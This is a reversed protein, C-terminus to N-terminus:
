GLLKSLADVPSVEGQYVKDTLTKPTTPPSRHAKPATQKPKAKLKAVDKVADRLQRYDHLLKLQRHDHVQDAENPTLGYEDLLSKIAQRDVKAQEPDSWEPIAAQQLQTERSVYQEWQQTAQRREQETPERGLSQQVLMLERRQRLLENETEAKQQQTTALLTESRKLDQVKDKIEGLTFSEGDALPIRVDYLGAADVGLTEALDTLTEPVKEPEPPEQEATQDPQPEPEDIATEPPTEPETQEPGDGALLSALEAVKDSQSPPPTQTDTMESEWLM